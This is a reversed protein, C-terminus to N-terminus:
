STSPAAASPNRPADPPLETSYGFRHFDRAYLHRVIRALDPTYFQSLRSAADSGPFNITDPTPLREEPIGLKRFVAASDAEVHELRGVFDIDILELVCDMHQPQWLAHLKFPHNNNEGLKQVFTRFDLRKRGDRVWQLVAKKGYLYEVIATYEASTVDAPPALNSLYVSLIRSYPNRVFQFLFMDKRRFLDDMKEFDLNAVYRLGSNQKDYATELNMYDGVGALKRLLYLWSASAVRASPCFMLNLRKNYILERSRPTLIFSNMDHNQSPLRRESLYAQFDENSMSLVQERTRVSYKRSISPGLSANVHHESSSGVSPESSEYLSEEIEPLSISGVDPKASFDVYPDLGSAMPGLFAIGFVTTVTAIVLSANILVKHASQSRMEDASRSLDRSIEVSAREGFPGMATTTGPRKMRSYNANGNTVAASSQLSVGVVPPSSLSPSTAMWGAQPTLPSVQVHPRFHGNTSTNSHISGNNSNSINETATYDLRPFQDAVQTVVVSAQPAAAPVGTAITTSRESSM